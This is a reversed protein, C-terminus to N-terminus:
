KRRKGMKESPSTASASPNHARKPAPHEPAEEGATPAPQAPLYIPAPSYDEDEIKDTLNEQLLNLETKRIVRISPGTYYLFCSPHDLLHEFLPELDPWCLKIHRRFYGKVLSPTIGKLRSERQTTSHENAFYVCTTAAFSILRHKFLYSAVVWTGEILLGFKRCFWRIFARYRTMAIEIELLEDEDLIINEYTRLDLASSFEILNGLAIIDLLGEIVTVDIVHLPKKMGSFPM